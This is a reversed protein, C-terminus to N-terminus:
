LILFNSPRLFGMRVLFQTGPKHLSPVHEVMSNCRLKERQNQTPKMYGLSGQFEHDEQRQRRM